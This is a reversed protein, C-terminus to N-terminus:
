CIATMNIVNSVHKLIDSAHKLV